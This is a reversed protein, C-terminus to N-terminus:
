SSWKLIIGLPWSPPSEKQGIWPGGTVVVELDLGHGLDVEQGELVELAAMDGLIVLAELVGVLDVAVAVPVELGGTWMDM